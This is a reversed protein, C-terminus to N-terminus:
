ADGHVELISGERTLVILPCCPRTPVIQRRSLPSPPLLSTCPSRGVESEEGGGYPPYGLPPRGSSLTYWYVLSLAQLFGGM